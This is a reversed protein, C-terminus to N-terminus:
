KDLLKLNGSIFLPDLLDNNEIVEDVRDINKYQNMTLSLIDTTAEFRYDKLNQLKSYKQTYFSIFEKRSQKYKELLNYKSENLNVGLNIDSEIENILIDFSSLIDEKTSGFSDGTTFDVIELTEIAVNLMLSNLLINYAKSSINISEDVKNDFTKNTASKLNNKIGNTIQKHNSSELLPLKIITKLSKVINKVDNVLNLKSAIVGSLNNKANNIAGIANTIPTLDGMFRLTDAANNLTSTIQQILSESREETTEEFTNNFYEIAEEEYFVNYVIEEEFIIDNQEEIFKITFFVIGLNQTDEDATWSDVLVIKSGHFLDILEGSGNSNLIKIFDEKQTLYNAGGLYADIIITNEKVGNEETETGQNIFKHTSLRKGGDLTTRRTYFPYGKFSSENLNTIDFNKM